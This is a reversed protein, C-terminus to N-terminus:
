RIFIAADLTALTIDRQREADGFKQANRDAWGASEYANHATAIRLYKAHEPYLESETNGKDWCTQERQATQAMTAATKACRLSSRESRTMWAAQMMEAAGSLGAEIAAKAVKHRQFSAQRAASEEAMWVQFEKAARMAAHATPVDCVPDLARLEAAITGFGAADLATPAFRRVARDAFYYARRQEVAPKSRTGVLKVAFPPLDDAHSWWRGRNLRKAFAGLVPSVGPPAPTDPEAAFYAIVEVVSVDEM